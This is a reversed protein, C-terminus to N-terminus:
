GGQGTLLRVAWLLFMDLLWLLIGVLIVMVIIILTTQMTERRTPWVVKRVETRSEGLFVWFGRGIETQLAIAISVGGAALLGLVRLLLSQASFYYFAVMAALLFGGAVFLKVSDLRSNSTEIKANM